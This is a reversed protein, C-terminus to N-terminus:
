SIWSAAMRVVGVVQPALQMLTRPLMLALAAIPLRSPPANAGLLLLILPSHVRGFSYVHNWHDSYVVALSLGLVAFAVAALRAPRRCPADLDDPQTRRTAGRWPAWWNAMLPRLGGLLLILAGALAVWHALLVVGAFTGGVPPPLLADRWDALRFIRYRYDIAETRHHVYLFWLLSPLTAGAALSAPLWRRYRLDAWVAAAILLLGTERILPAAALAAYQAPRHQRRYWLYATVATCFPGDIVMRDLSVLTAPLLLFALGWRPHHGQSEVWRASWYVGLAAAVVIVAIYAGDVAPPHGLALAYALAPILIRRYRVRPDDLLTWSDGTMTPNHAIYRYWQGDYGTSGQFVYVPQAGPLPLPRLQEGTCFLATWHGGYNATITASQWLLILAAAAVAMRAARSVPTLKPAFDM